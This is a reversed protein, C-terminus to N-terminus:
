ASPHKLIEALARLRASDAPSKATAASKELSPAMRKLKALKGGRLHSSEASQIAKELAEIQRAPVAHSRSL